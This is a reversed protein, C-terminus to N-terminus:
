LVVGTLGPADCHACYAILDFVTLMPREHWTPREQENIWAKAYARAVRCRANKLRPDSGHRPCTIYPYDYRWIHRDLTYCNACWWTAPRVPEAFDVYNSREVNHYDCLLRLNDTTDAGGASWPKIHDLHM